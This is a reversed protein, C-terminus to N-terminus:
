MSLDSCKGDCLNHLLGSSLKLPNKKKQCVFYLVDQGRPFASSMCLLCITYTCLVSTFTSTCLYFYVLFERNCCFLLLSINEVIHFYDKYLFLSMPMIFVSVKLCAHRDTYCLSQLRCLSLDRCTSKIATVSNICSQLLQAECEEGVQFENNEVRNELKGDRRSPVIDTTKLPHVM